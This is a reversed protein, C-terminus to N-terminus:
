IMCRLDILPEGGYLVDRLLKIETEFKQIVKVINIHRCKKEHRGRRIERLTQKGIYVTIRINRYVWAHMRTCHKETRADIITESHLREHTRANQFTRLTSTATDCPNHIQHVVYDTTYIYYAFKSSQHIYITLCERATSQNEVGAVTTGSYCEVRM